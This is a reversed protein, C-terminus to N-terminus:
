GPLLVGATRIAEQYEGSSEEIVRIAAEVNGRGAMSDADERLQGARLLHAKMGSENPGGRPVLLPVLMRYSDNRDLEYRYEDQPTDFQLARVLTEGGRLRELQVKARLYAHDLVARGRRVQQEAVLGDAQRMLRDIVGVEARATEDSKEDAVRALADRLTKTSEMRGAYGNREDLGVLEARPALASTEPHQQMLEIIALKSGLYADDLLVRADALRGEALAAKAVDMKLDAARIVADNDVKNQKSVRKLAENLGKASDFLRAFDERERAATVAAVRGSSVDALAQWCPLIAAGALLVAYVARKSKKSM